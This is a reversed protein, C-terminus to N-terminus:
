KLAIYYYTDNDNLMSGVNRVYFGNQYIDIPMTGTPTSTNSSPATDVRYGFYTPQHGHSESPSVIVAKPRFGLVVRKAEDYGSGVYSGRVAADGGTGAPGQPGAPGIEGRDGKPGQPGASGTPGQVGQPGTDGKDGKAGPEGKEGKEGQPIVFDFVAELATGSNTVQAQTGAQGTQVSGVRLSAAQGPEGKDGKAGPEGKEGKAGPTGAPGPDGQEGKAGPAGAPGTEGKEGQVGDKGPVGDQGPEGREGKDGKAGNKVTFVKAGERDTITVTTGDETPTTQVTPSFGDAGQAGPAGDQGQAGAPGPDGKAGAPGADGKEGKAGQLKGHNTWDGAVSDYIYIDYPVSAGVSYADGAEPQTVAEKLAQLSEYKGLIRFGKGQEGKAGTDGKTGPEGREGREGKDGKAGNKVTFVKAGEHDTITVTTGGEAPATQVTPSFGDAGKDGPEGKAGPEGREGKAGPTGPEGKEGTDGKTGQAGTEGKPGPVGQAGTDGRQALLSYKQGDDSPTVGVVGDQLVLFSSGEFRVLDLRNYVSEPAYEGKPTITVKGLNTSAM